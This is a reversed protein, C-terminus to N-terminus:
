DVRSERLSLHRFVKRQVPSEITSMCLVVLVANM